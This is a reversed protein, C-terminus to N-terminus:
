SPCSTKSSIFHHLQFKHHVLYKLPTAVVQGVGTQRSIKTTREKLTYPARKLPYPGMMAAGVFLWCVYFSPRRMDAGLPSTGLVPLRYPHNSPCSSTEMICRIFNWQILVWNIYLYIGNKFEMLMSSIRGCFVVFPIQYWLNYIDGMRTPKIYWLHPVETRRTPELVGPRTAARPLGGM